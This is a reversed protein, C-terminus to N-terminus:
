KCAALKPREESSMGLQVQEITNLEKYCQVCKAKYVRCMGLVCKRHILIAVQMKLLLKIKLILRIRQHSLKGM